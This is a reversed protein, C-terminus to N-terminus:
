FIGIICIFDLFFHKNILLADHFKSLISTIQILSFGTNQMNKRSDGNQYSIEYITITM